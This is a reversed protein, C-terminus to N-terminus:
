LKELGSENRNSGVDALQQPFIGFPTRIKNMCGAKILWKEKVAVRLWDRDVFKFPRELLDPFMCAQVALTAGAALGSKMIQAV